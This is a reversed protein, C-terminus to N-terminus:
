SEAGCGEKGRVSVETTTGSGTRGSGSALIAALAGVAEERRYEM